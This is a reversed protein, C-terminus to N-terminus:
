ARFAQENAYYEGNFKSYDSPGLIKFKELAHNMVETNKNRVLPLAAKMLQQPLEKMLDKFLGRNFTIRNFKNQSSIQM